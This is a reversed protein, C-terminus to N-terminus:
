VLGPYSSIIYDTAAPGKMRLGNHEPNVRSKMASWFRDETNLRQQNIFCWSTYLGYLRDRDLTYESPQDLYTAEQLFTDIQSHAM